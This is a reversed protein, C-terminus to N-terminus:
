RHNKFRRVLETIIEYDSANFLQDASQLERQELVRSLLSKNPRNADGYPIVSNPTDETEKRTWKSNGDDIAHIQISSGSDRRMVPTPPHTTNITRDGM